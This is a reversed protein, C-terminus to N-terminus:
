LKQCMLVISHAVRHLKKSILMFINMDLAHFLVNELTRWPIFFFSTQFSYFPMEAVKNEFEELKPEM